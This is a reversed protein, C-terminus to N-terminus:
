RPVGTVRGELDIGSVSAVDDFVVLRLTTALTEGAGLVRHTGAAIGDAVSIPYGSCPELITVQLDRWGGFSSFLWCSRFVDPDFALGVGVGDDHTLACWGADLSTAYQFEAVRSSRPLTPAMDTEVGDEVLTPWRYMTGATGARPSGFDEVYMDRAGLDVRAAGEVALALHQKWMFPMDTGGLNSVSETLQLSREGAALTLTRELRCASIPTHVELRVWASGDSDSGTSWTWPLAWTEGHDPYHEGAISEPVDNPFLVDWGGQFVDDYAAAFPVQRAPIRPNHWLLERGSRRDEIQWVKGGLEPLVTVVLHENRLVLARLGRFTWDSDVRAPALATWTM